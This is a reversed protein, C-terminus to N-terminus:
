TTTAYRAKRHQKWDKGVTGVSWSGFDWRFYGSVSSGFGIHINGSLLPFPGTEFLKILKIM